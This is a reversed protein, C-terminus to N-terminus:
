RHEEGLVFARARAMLTRDLWPDGVRFGADGTQQKGLLQGAGRHKLDFKAIEFGDQSAQLVRMRELGERRLADGLVLFCFGAGAGRGVRGRLQHLQSLGFQHANEIVMISARPVDVGVEIVTTAVLIQIRGRRFDAMAEQIQEKKMKGHVLGVSFERFTRERFERYMQDASQEQQSEAGEILPFVWFVSEGHAIRSKAFSVIEDRNAAKKLITRVPQREAPKERIQLVQFEGYLTLALSRPIPTASFALYHVAKGKKLFARRQDVGFRHQEDIMALGLNKFYVDAQFIRHTGIILDAAGDATERITQNRQRGDGRSTLLGVKVGLPGLLETATAFHQEALVTTPCLLAAQYDAVKFVWAMALGVLTKGCGVDGQILAHLRARQELGTLLQDIVKQQDNTPVFPLGALFPALVSRHVEFMPHDRSQSKSVLVQLRKQFEFFEELVLRQLAPSSRDKIATAAHGNEPRHISCLAARKDPLGELLDLPANAPDPMKMLLSLIWQEIQSSRLGSVQRYVPTLSQDPEPEAFDYKPNSLTRGTKEMRIKGFLSVTDGKLIKDKLFPQNYWVIRLTGSGDDVLVELTPIRKQATVGVNKAIITGRVHVEVEEPATAIPTVQSYDLYDRPFFYLLDDVNVIGANALKELSKPGLGKIKVSKLPLKEWLDTVM